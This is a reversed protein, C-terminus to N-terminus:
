QHATIPSIYKGLKNTPVKLNKVTRCRMPFLDLEVVIKPCIFCPISSAEM